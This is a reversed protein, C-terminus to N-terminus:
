RRDGADAAAATAPPDGVRDVHTPRGPDDTVDRSGSRQESIDVVTGRRDKAILDLAAGAAIEGLRRYAEFERDGYLQQATSDNPFAEHGAAWAFVDWSADASVPLALKCLLLDAEVGNPYRAVGRAVLAPARRPDDRPRMSTPDLAIEVGLDARATEVAQGFTSWSAPPDGSADFVVIETAGRRLAEVLGLNEYHGGDTVYVWRRHLTTRGFIEALLALIGPQRLQWGIRSLVGAEPAPALPLDDRRPNPMWLGLRVNAVGLLLRLPARTMRGMVPSIAAGSVAVAAPLTVLRVGARREYEECPVMLSTDAGAAEGDFMTGASIGTWRPSFTWPACARGSPVVGEEDTNVAACVVLQPSDGAYDSLEVRRSFPLEEADDVLVGDRERRIRQVAFASCLREKYFPHISNRNVDTLTQWGLTLAIAAALALADSRQLGHYAAETTWGLFALLLLAVAVASGAWPALARVVRALVRGVPGGSGGSTSTQLKGRFRGLTGKVAAVIAVTTAAFGTLQNAAPVGNGPLRAGDLAAVLAPVGALLAALVGALVLLRMTWARTLSKLWPLPPRYVDHVRDVAFTVMALAGIVVAVEVVVGVDGAAWTGGTGPALLQTGHLVWGLLKAVVFIVALVPLLNLLLGYLINLVGIAAVKPDEVLYRTHTRLRNDEPSGPAYPPLEARQEPTLSHNVMAFSAAMYSGGSVATVLHTGDYFSPAGATRRGLRQMGGMAFAAARIGGGSCCIARVPSAPETPDAVSPVPGFRTSRAAAPSTPAPPRGPLRGLSPRRGLLWRRLARGRAGSAPGTTGGAASATM